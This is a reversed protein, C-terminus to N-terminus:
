PWLESPTDICIHDNSLAYQYFSSVDMGTAEDIAKPYGPPDSGFLSDAMEKFSMTKLRPSFVLRPGSDKFCGRLKDGSIRIAETGYVAVTNLDPYYIILEFPLYGVPSDQFTTLYVEPPQRYEELLRDVPYSGTSPRVSISTIIGDGITLLGGGENGDINYTYSASTRIHQKGAETYYYKRGEKVTSFQSLFQKATAWDTKEPIIGWWCPFRCNANKEYLEQIMNMSELDTLTPLPTWSATPSPKPARTYTSSPIPTQTPEFTPTLTLTTVSTPATKTQPPKASVTEMALPATPTKPLSGGRSNCGLLTLLSLLLALKAWTLLLLKIFM